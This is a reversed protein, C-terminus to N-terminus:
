LCSWRSELTSCHNKRHSKICSWLRKTVSGNEDILGGIYNNYAKHREGQAMSKFKCYMEWNHSSNFCKSLNYLRQKKHSLQKKYSNVWPQKSQNTQLKTLVFNLCNYCMVKFEEWLIDIPTSKSFESLFSSTFDVISSNDAKQWLCCTNCSFIDQSIKAKTSSKNQARTCPRITLRKCCCM